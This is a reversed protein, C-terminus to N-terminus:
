DSPHAVSLIFPLYDWLYLVIPFILHWCQYFKWPILLIDNNSEQKQQMKRREKKLIWALRLHTIIRELGQTVVIIKLDGVCEATDEYVWGGRHVTCECRNRLNGIWRNEIELTYTLIGITGIKFSRSKGEIEIYKGVISCQALIKGVNSCQELIKWINQM